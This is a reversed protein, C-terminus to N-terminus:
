FAYVVVLCHTNLNSSPRTLGKHDIHITKFLTKESNAGSNLLRKKYTTDNLSTLKANYCDDILSVM